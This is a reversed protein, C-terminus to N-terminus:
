CLGADSLLIQALSWDSTAFMSVSLFEIACQSNFLMCMSVHDTFLCLVYGAFMAFM